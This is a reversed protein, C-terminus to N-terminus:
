QVYLQDAHDDDKYGNRHNDDLQPLRRMHQAERNALLVGSIKVVVCSVFIGLRIMLLIMAPWVTTEAAL